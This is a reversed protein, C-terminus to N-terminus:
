PVYSCAYRGRAGALRASQTIRIVVYQQGRRLRAVLLISVDPVIPAVRARLLSSSSFSSVDRFKRERCVYGCRTSDGKARLFSVRPLTFDRKRPLSFSSDSRERSRDDWHASSSNLPIYKGTLFLFPFSSRVARTTVFQRAFVFQCTTRRCHAQSGTARDVIKRTRTATNTRSCKKILTSLEHIVKVYSSGIAPSLSRAAIWDHRIDTTGDRWAGRKRTECATCVAHKLM